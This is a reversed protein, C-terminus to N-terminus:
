AGKSRLTQKSHFFSRFAESLSQKPVFPNVCHKVSVAQLGGVKFMDDLREETHQFGHEHMFENGLLHCWYM